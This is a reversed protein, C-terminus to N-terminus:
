STAGPGFIVSNLANHTQVGWADRLNFMIAYLFHIKGTYFLMLQFLFIAVATVTMLGVAINAVQKSCDIATNLVIVSPTWSDVAQKPSTTGQLTAWSLKLM